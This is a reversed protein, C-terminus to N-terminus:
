EASSVKRPPQPRTELGAELHFKHLFRHFVPAFLIGTAGIFGVGSFIAYFSAFIKGGITRLSDVPGMGGLIMAANLVADVFGMGEFGMYGAVGVAWGVLIVLAALGSHRIQRRAFEKRSLLGETRHEFM